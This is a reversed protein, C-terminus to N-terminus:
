ADRIEATLGFLRCIARELRHLQAAPDQSADLLHLEAHDGDLSAALTGPLLGICNVLLVRAAPHRTHLRYRHFGPAIRLQPQLTRYAVDLGGHVSERLFLAAFAPLGRLDLRPRAPAGLRTSTYAALVAAPVGILWAEPRGQTILWWLGAFLAL